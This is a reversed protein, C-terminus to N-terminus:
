NYVVGGGISITQGTIFGAHPCALYAVAEAIDSPEGSRKVHQVALVRREIEDFNPLQRTGETPVVGPAIANATIGHPGGETAIVRTLGIVGAKSAVYAASNELGRYFTGSSFNVIRGYGAERMHNYAARCTYFTGNLNVDIVRKWEETTVEDFPTFPFIGAAHVLIEISSFRQKIREFLQIVDAESSVDIPYAQADFGENRLSAAAEEVILAERDLLVLRAGEEGLRKACAFGLGRAAGTIVAVQNEFRM